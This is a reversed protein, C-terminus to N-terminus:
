RNMREAMSKKKRRVPRNSLKKASSKGLSNKLPLRVGSLNALACDYYDCDSWHNRKGDEYRQKSENWVVSALHSGMLRHEDDNRPLFLQRSGSNKESTSWRKRSWSKWYNSEILFLPCAIGNRHTRVQWHNGTRKIDKGVSKIRTLGSPTRMDGTGMLPKCRASRKQRRLHYVIETLFGADIGIAKCPLLRRDETYIEEDDLKEYLRALTELFLFEMGEQDMDTTVGTSEIGYNILRSTGDMSWASTIWHLEYKGCDIVHNIFSASDQPVRRPSTSVRSQFWQASMDSGIDALLDPPNLNMDQAAAEEGDKAVRNWFHQVAHFELPRSDIGLTSFFKNEDAVVFGDTVWDIEKLFLDDCRRPLRNPKDSKAIEIMEKQRLPIYTNQWWEMVKEDTPFEVIFPLRKGAWAPEIVPNSFEFGISFRKPTNCLMVIALKRKSGELGAVEGRIKRMKKKTKEDTEGEEDWDDGIILEPRLSGHKMGRLPADVGRAHIISGSAPSLRQKDEGEVFFKVTPFVLKNGSWKIKTREGNVTQAVAKAGSMGELSVIPLIVEPYFDLLRHMPMGDDDYGGEEGECYNKINSLIQEAFPGNAAVVGVYKIKGTLILYLTVGETISTKGCGRYGARCRYGGYEGVYLIAEVMERRMPTWHGDFLEPIFFSLWKFIDQELEQRVQWIEQPFVPLFIDRAAKRAERLVDVNKRDYLAIDKTSVTEIDSLREEFRLRSKKEKPVHKQRKKSPALPM